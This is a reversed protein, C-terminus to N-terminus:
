EWLYREKKAPIEIKPLNVVDGGSLYSKHLLHENERLFESYIKTEISGYFKFCIMELKDGEKAVYKNM